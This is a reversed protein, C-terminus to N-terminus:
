APRRLRHLADAVAARVRDAQVPKVLMVDV